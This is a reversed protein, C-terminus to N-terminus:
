PHIGRTALRHDLEQRRRSLVEVRRRAKVLLLAAMGSLAGHMVAGAYAGRGVGGWYGLAMMGTAGITSFVLGMTAAVVRDAGFLIRRRALVWTAFMAWAISGAVILAFGLQTRPPLAPETAWLSGIGAAMMLSVILLSVHGLRSPLSLQASVLRQMDGVSAPSPDVPLASPHMTM